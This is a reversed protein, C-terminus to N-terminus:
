RSSGSAWSRRGTTAMTSSSAWRTSDPLLSLSDFTNGRTACPLSALELDAQAGDGLLGLQEVALQEALEVGEEDEAQGVLLVAVDQADDDFCSM